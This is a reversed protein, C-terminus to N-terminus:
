CEDTSDDVTIVAQSIKDQLEKVKVEYAQKAEGIASEAEKKLKNIELEWQKIQNNSKGVYIRKPM